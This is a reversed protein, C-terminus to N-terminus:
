NLEELDNDFKFNLMFISNLKLKYVKVVLEVIM